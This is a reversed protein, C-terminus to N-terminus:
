LSIGSPSQVSLGCREWTMNRPDADAKIRGPCDPTQNELLSPITELMVLRHPWLQREVLTFKMSISRLLLLIMMDPMRVTLAIMDPIRQPVTTDVAKVFVAGVVTMKASRLRKTGFVDVPCLIRLPM